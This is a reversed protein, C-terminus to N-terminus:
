EVVTTDSSKKVRHNHKYLQWTNVLNHCISYFGGAIATVPTLFTYAFWIAFVTNKQGLAQGGTIVEGNRRGIYRGFAFQVLCCFLATVAICLLTYLPLTTQAIASCTMAIALSLAVLWHYFPWNRGKTVIFNHVRPFWHRLVVACLLPMLLLPFVKGIILWFSSLLNMGEVPHSLALFFPAVLAVSMNILMTYSVLSASNGGLRATIVAAATATPCVCCLMAAELLVRVTPPMGDFFYISLSFVAFALLQFLLLWLHWLSPKLETVRVKCFTIFLMIFILWPQIISLASMVFAHTKDLLPINVYVLYMIVGALMAIPLSWNRLLKYIRIKM